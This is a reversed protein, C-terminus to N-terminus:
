KAMECLTAVAEGNDDTLKLEKAHFDKAEAYRELDFLTAAMSTYLGSLTKRDALDSEALSLAKGYYFLAASFAKLRTCRLYLYRLVIVIQVNNSGENEFAKIL